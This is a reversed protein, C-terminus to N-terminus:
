PQQCSTLRGIRHSYQHGHVEGDSENCVVCKHMYRWNTWPCALAADLARGAVVFHGRNGRISRMEGASMWQDRSQNENHNRKKCERGDQEHPRHRVRWLMNIRDQTEITWIFSGAFGEGNGKGLLPVGMNQEKRAASGGILRRTRLCMSDLNHAEDIEGIVRPALRSECRVICLLVVQVTEHDHRFAWLRSTSVQKQFPAERSLDNNDWGGFREEAERLIHKV